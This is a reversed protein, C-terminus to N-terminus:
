LKGTAVWYSKTASQLLTDQDLNSALPVKSYENGQFYYDHKKEKTRLYLESEKVLGFLTDNKYLGSVKDDIVRYTISDMPELAKLIRNAFPNNLMSSPM